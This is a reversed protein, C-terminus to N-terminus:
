AARPKKADARAQKEQLNLKREDLRAQRRMKEREIEMKEEAVREELALRREMEERELQLKLLEIQGDNEQGGQGSQNPDDMATRKARAIKDVASARRDMNETKIKDLEAEAMELEIEQARQEQETPELDDLVEQKNPLRSNAVLVEDRVKVKLERMAVTQDFVTDEHQERAPVSSTIVDYEGTTLDNLISGDPQVQNITVESPTRRVDNGVVLLAREDTYYRQALSLIREAVLHDTRVSNSMPRGQSVSGRGEQQELAKGSTDARANGRMGPGVNSQDEFDKDFKYTVRDLGTPVQNPAIKEADAVNALALVVGSEAGRQELEQVSMNRLAGDRIKWGSNAVSNIIALEQSRAKNLGEQSGLLNEVLGITRGMILYPFFPVLTFHEYAMIADHLLLDDASVRWRLLQTKLPAVMVGSQQIVLQIRERDWTSPIARAEGTTPEIFHDVRRTEKFQREIVRVFRRHTTFRPDSTLHQYGVQGGFGDVPYDLHDAGGAMFASQSRNALEKGAGEDYTTGINMPTSWWSQFVQNWEDPNYESADADLVCNKPNPSTVKIDGKINDDFNMRVDFFGRSTIAGKDFVDGKVHVYSNAHHVHLLLKDLAEATEPNGGSTARFAVDVQNQAQEGMLVALTPLVRGITLAPKGQARLMSAIASDWQKDPYADVYDLCRNAKRVFDMHGADRAYVYQQANEIARERKTNTDTM